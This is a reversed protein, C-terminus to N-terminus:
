NTKVKNINKLHEIGAKSNVMISNTFMALVWGLSLMELLTRRNLRFVNLKNKDVAMYMVQRYLWFWQHQRQPRFNARFRGIKKEAESISTTIYFFGLPWLSSLLLNKFFKYASSQDYLQIHFSSAFLVCSELLAAWVFPRILHDFDQRLKILNRYFGFMLLKRRSVKKEQIGYFGYVILVGLTAVLSLLLPQICVFLLISFRVLSSIQRYNYYIALTIIFNQNLTAAMAVKYALNLSKMSNPSYDSLGLLFEWLINLLYYFLMLFLWPRLWFRHLVGVLKYLKRNMAFQHREGKVFQFINCGSLTTLVQLLQLVSTLCSM